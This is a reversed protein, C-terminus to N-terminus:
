KAQLFRAARFREVAAMEIRLEAAIRRDPWHALYLTMISKRIDKSLTNCATSLDILNTDM